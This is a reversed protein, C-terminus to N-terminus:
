STIVAEGDIWVRSIDHRTAGLMIKQFVDGPSDLDPWVSLDSDPRVTTVAIADFQYGPEIVGIPADLAIGGGTTAMWFADAFTIRSGPRGRHAAPVDAAVGDERIRSVAVANAIANFLSPSHGGSIDTGLGVHVGSDLARRAPFVANAFYVNSLPCHAVASGAQRITEMDEDTVFNSHALVTRRGLLGLAEYTATDTTGFREIGYRHAWDSESCHTQLPAGTAAALEGLGQLLVDSCSPLFRPTVVGCVTGARNDPHGAFYEILEATERVAEDPTADRYYEPSSEPNDMAVRGIYARQGKELCIDGLVKTAALHITGFYVATTTGNAIMSDVLSAYVGAAFSTDRYRAELPFTYKGLWEALTVDLAKGLQPWQPAHNHLDVLGPLLYEGGELEQLLRRRRLEAVTQAFDSDSPELVCSIRGRPDTIVLAEDRIRIEGRLPADIVPGSVAYGISDM